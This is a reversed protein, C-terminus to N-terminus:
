ADRGAAFRKVADVWDLTTWAMGLSHSRDGMRRLEEDSLRMVRVFADTMADEDLPGFAFGNEGARLYATAAQVASSCLLPLGMLAFEHVVVGWPEYRSPLVFCGSEAVWHQLEDPKKYGLHEIRPHRTREDWLPGRGICRLKWDSEPVRELARLFAHEMRRMNKVAVYRGVYLFVHPWPARGPTYLASFKGTDAAYYGTRCCASRFGLRAAYTTQPIGAGWAYDFVGHFRARFLIRNLYQKLRGAWPTDMCLVTRGGALRVRRAMETFARDSWGGCLYVDPRWTGLEQLAADASSVRDRDIWRVTQALAAPAVPTLNCPRQWVAVEAVHRLAEIESLLYGSVNYVSILVRLTAGM